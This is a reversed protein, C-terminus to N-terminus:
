KICDIVQLAKTYQYVIACLLLFQGNLLHYFFILWLGRAFNECLFDFLATFILWCILYVTFAYMTANHRVWLVRVIHCKCQFRSGCLFLVSYCENNSVTQRYDRDAPQDTKNNNSNEAIM